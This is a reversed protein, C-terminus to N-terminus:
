GVRWEEERKIWLWRSAMEAANTAMKMARRQSAGTIGLMKYARCLSQGVFGRCGVEIPQCRTRWGNNRCEEVLDAYKARKREHAEELKEEWPVTLEFLIVQKSVASTLVIDPRPTTKAVAEPFKLHKGLDVKLEWDHATALLGSSTNRIVAAPKEGARVFTITKNAPRLSKSHSIGAWITGAIAKLVQDHRWRYRGEGLAKPCCSLVHELTGTRQCLPCALTEAKGWTFLNSPSPLVDYVAQRLFKIRQPEAKWLETWTVKREVAQEWRTRAGQQWMGVMQSARKEEVGAQVEELILSRREKGQAKDFRTSNGSGLGARGQAVAGVLARQRLRSEAIDVAEAARWKRGMRVEIGAHAVKPDSSERYQLLERARTVMFEECLSSIPLKLKNNQGYLAISSLSRPLGLWRRLFRSVRMEFGEVVSIPVEYDLLPLLIRPLIGHQYIWAKFKGPLGSKDVVALWTELEQNIAQTSVADRLSSNFVKGLSKVPEETLSPIRTNGLSFSFKGTVKGRKLVLSRSKAPKFSM